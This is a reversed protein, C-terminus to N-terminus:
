LIKVLARNIPWDPSYIKCILFAAGLGTLAGGAVDSAYHMGVYVRSYCVLIAALAFLRAQARFGLLAFAAAIAVVATTHDSPFSWDASKEIILHSIGADYPRVRHIFLLVLQNLLQGAAFSLGVAILGHRRTERNSKLLWQLAVAIILLPVGYITLASMVADILPYSGAPANILTTLNVDFSEM